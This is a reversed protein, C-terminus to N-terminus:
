MLDSLDLLDQERASARKNAILDAKSIFWVRERGYKGEVKNSWAAEFSVGDITTLVDIRIPSRGLQIV